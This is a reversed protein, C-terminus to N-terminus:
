GIRHVTEHGQSCTWKMILNESDWLGGDVDLECKSCPRIGSLEEFTSNIQKQEKNNFFEDLKPM